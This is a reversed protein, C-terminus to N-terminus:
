GRRGGVGGYTRNRIRRNVNFASFPSVPKTIIYAGTEQLLIACLSREHALSRLEVLPRTQEPRKALGKGRIIWPADTEKSEHLSAEVAAVIHVATEPTDM